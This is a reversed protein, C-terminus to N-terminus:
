NRELCRSSTMQVSRRKVRRFMPDAETGVCYNDGLDSRKFTQSRTLPTPTSHDIDKSLAEAILRKGM